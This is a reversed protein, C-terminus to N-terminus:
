TYKVGRRLSSLGEHDGIVLEVADDETARIKVVKQWVKSTSAGGGVNALDADDPPSSRLALLTIDQLDSWASVSFLIFRSRGGLGTLLELLASSTVVIAYLGIIVLYAMIMSLAFWLTKSDQGSGYGYREVDFDMAVVADYMEHMQRMTRNHWDLVGEDSSTDHYLVAIEDLSDAAFRTMQNKTSAITNLWAMTVSTETDELVLTTVFNSGLRALTDAFWTAYTRALMGQADQKTIDSSIFSPVETGNATTTLLAFRSVIMKLASTPREENSEKGGVYQPQTINLLPNVYDMWSDFYRLVSGGMNVGDAKFIEQMDVEKSLNSRVVDDVSPDISLASPVWRATTSCAYVWYGGIISEGKRASYPLLGTFHFVSSSINASASIMPWAEPFTELNELPVAQREQTHWLCDTDGYCNLSETPFVVGSGNTRQVEDLDFVVCKAQVFPQLM